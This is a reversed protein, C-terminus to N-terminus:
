IDKTLGIGVWPAPTIRPAPTPRNPNGDCKSSAEITTEAARKEVPTEPAEPKNMGREEVRPESMEAKAM